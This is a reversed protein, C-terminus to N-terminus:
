GRGQRPSNGARYGDQRGARVDRDVAHELAASAVAVADVHRDRHQARM